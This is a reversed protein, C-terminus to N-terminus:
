RAGIESILKKLMADAENYEKFRLRELYEPLVTPNYSNADSFFIIRFGM